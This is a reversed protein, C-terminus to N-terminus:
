KWFYHHMDHIVRKDEPPLIMYNGYIATLYKDYLQIAKFQCNEFDVDIFNDMIDRKFYMDRNGRFAMYGVYESSEYDYRRCIAIHRYLFKYIANRYIIKKPVLKIKKFISACYSFDGLAERAMCSKRWLSWVKETTKLFEIRSSEVGDIPFIDIWVGTDKDAWIAAPKVYTMEMDVLRAYAIYCNKREEAFCAFRKNDKYSAVFLDYDPRPMIIDIDDDWPIFGKHRIAGLLTGSDLSYKLHHTICFKHFEKLIELSVHQIDNLSMQKM